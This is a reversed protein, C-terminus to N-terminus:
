FLMFNVDLSYQATSHKHCQQLGCVAEQWAQAIYKKKETLYVVCKEAISRKQEYLFQGPPM